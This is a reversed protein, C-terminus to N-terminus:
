SWPRKPGGESARPLRRRPRQRYPGAPSPARRPSKAAEGMSALQKEIALDCRAIQQQLHRYNELAQGLVFLSEARYDGTLAAEIQEQSQKVRRDVLGALTRPNREGALIADLIAL